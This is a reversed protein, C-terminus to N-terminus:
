EEVVVSVDPLNDFEEESLDTADGLCDGEAYLYHPQGSVGTHIHTNLDTIKYLNGDKSSFITDGVDVNFGDGAEYIILKVM